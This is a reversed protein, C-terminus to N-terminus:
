PPPVVDAWVQLNAYTAGYWPYFRDEVPAPISLRVVPDRTDEVNTPSLDVELTPGLQQGATYLSIRTLFPKSELIVHWVQGPSWPGETGALYALYNGVELRNKGPTCTGRARDMGHFFATAVVNGSIQTGFVSALGLLEPCGEPDMAALADLNDLTQLDFEVRVCNFGQGPQLFPTEFSSVDTTVWLAAGPKDLVLVYNCPGNDVPGDTDPSGTTTSWPDGTTSVTTTPEPGTTGTDATSGTGSAAASTSVPDDTAGPDNPVPDSCAAYSGLFLFTLVPRRRM